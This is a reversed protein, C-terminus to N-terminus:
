RLFNKELFATDVEGRVFRSHGLLDLYLPITTKVGDLVYESLARRMGSIAEARTRRHVILKAILSDYQPPIRYNEYVHSDVRVGPGGPAVYRTIIGPSPKFGNNSDEANIRCEIAAGQFRVDDQRFSLPEGAAIRIQEKVIDIGTIMETVPHEVQLRANMEIFYFKRDPGVLFEITGVNVYRVARAFAIAAEGLKRRLKEDVAPSPAEELLKQFRRQISCDREGLHVFTGHQDALIQIEIHRAQEIYKEIYVSSDKFAAGAESQATLLGSVLSVDNHALRMGRGGGGLAAKIMVPYGLRHAIELADTEERVAQRSGPLVAIGAKAAVERSKWKNGALAAAEPVPGIFGINCSRCVEAFHSNESLFGYGPHIAEVDSIEAASIIRSIDLYSKASSAPGICIAEDAYKLYQADRDAESYVVVTEIGLERCARIIRLAVEGRNAILIRSFM